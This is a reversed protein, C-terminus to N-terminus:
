LLILVVGFQVLAVANVVEIVSRREALEDILTPRGFSRRGVMVAVLARVLGFSGGVIVGWLISGSLGAAALAVLYSAFYIRTSLGTGLDLGYLFSAAGPSKTHRWGMPTQRGLGLRRGHTALDYVLAAGTLGLLVWLAEGGLEDAGLLVGLAAAGGGALAGGALGGAVHLARVLPGRRGSEDVMPGITEVM